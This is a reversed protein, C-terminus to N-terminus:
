PSEGKAIASELQELVSEICDVSPPMSQMTAVLTLASRCAALLDKHALLIRCAEEETFVAPHLQGAFVQVAGSDIYLTVKSRVGKATKKSVTRRRVSGPSVRIYPM